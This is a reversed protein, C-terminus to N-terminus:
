VVSPRNLDTIDIDEILADLEDVTHDIAYQYEEESIPIITLWRTITGEITTYFLEDCLWYPYAFYIHKMPLNEDYMAVVDPFFAGPCCYWKSNIVCFACTCLFSKFMEEDEKRCIAMLESKVDNPEGYKPQDYFSLELTMMTVLGEEPTDDWIAVDMFSNEAEDLGRSIRPAKDIFQHLYNCIQRGREEASKAM